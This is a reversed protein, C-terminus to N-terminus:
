AASWRNATLRWSESLQEVSEYSRTYGTEAIRWGDTDRVYRDTYFAAGRLMMRQETILVTDQLYWTGTASDGSVEIEPHHVHHVTIIAGGLSNQMFEVVQDRGTFRLKPGYGAAVDETLTAAFGAWDKLDLCRVYRYKLQEIARITALEM